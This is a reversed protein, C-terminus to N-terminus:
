KYGGRLARMVKDNQSEEQIVRNAYARISDSVSPPKFDSSHITRKNDYPTEIEVEIGGLMASTEMALREELKRRGEPTQRALLNDLGEYNSWNHSM